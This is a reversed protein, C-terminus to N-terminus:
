ADPIVKTSVIAVSGPWLGAKVGPVPAAQSGPLPLPRAQATRVAVLEPDAVPEPPAVPARDLDRLGALARKLM